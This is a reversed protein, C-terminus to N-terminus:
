QQPNDEENFHHASSINLTAYHLNHAKCFHRLDTLLDKVVCEDTLDAGHGAHAFLAAEANKIRRANDRDKM